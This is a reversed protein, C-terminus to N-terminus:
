KYENPTRIKYFLNKLDIKLPSNIKEVKSVLNKSSSLALEITDIMENVDINVICKCDQTCLEYPVNLINESCLNCPTKSYVHYNGEYQTFYTPEAAYAIVSPCGVCRALHMLGSITGIFLDSNYLVSAVQRLSIKGCLNIVSNLPFDNIPGIQIFDYKDKLRDVIEQIIKYPLRKYIVKSDSMIAIQRKQTFRGYDKEDNTLNLTPNIIIEGELGLKSALSVLISCQPYKRVYCDEKKLYNMYTLYSLSFNVPFNVVNFIKSFRNSSTKNFDYYDNKKVESTKNILKFFFPLYKKLRKIFLKIEYPHIFNFIQVFNSNVFFSPFEVAILLKKGTKHYYIESVSRTLLNDGMGHYSLIIETHHNKKAEFPSLFNSLDYGQNKLGTIEKKWSNLKHFKLIYFYLFTFCKFLFLVM